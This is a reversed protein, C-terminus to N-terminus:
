FAVSVDDCTLLGFETKELVEVGVGRMEKNLGYLYVVIAEGGGGTM